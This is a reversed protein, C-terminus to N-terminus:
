CGEAALTVSRDAHRRVLGIDKSYPQTSSATGSHTTHVSGLRSQVALFLEAGAALEVGLCVHGRGGPSVTCQESPPSARSNHPYQGSADTSSEANEEERLDQENEGKLSSDNQSLGGLLTEQAM